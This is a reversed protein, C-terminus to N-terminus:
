GPLRAPWGPASPAPSGRARRASGRRGASRRPTRNPRGPTSLASPSSAPSATRSKGNSSRRLSVWQDSMIVLGGPKPRHLAPIMLAVFEVDAEGLKRSSHFSRTLAGRLEVQDRHQGVALGGAVHVDMGEVAVEPQQDDAAVVGGPVGDGARDVRQVLVRRLVGFSRSFGSSIGEITESVMRQCVGSACMRRVPGRLVELHAALGDALAVQDRHPVDRAVAVLPHDVIRVAVDDIAGPRASWKDNPKPMWRQTPLRRASSCSVMM